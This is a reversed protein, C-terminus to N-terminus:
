YSCSGLPTYNIFSASRTSLDQAGIATVTNGVTAIITYAGLIVAIGIVAHWLSKKASTFKVDSGQAAMMQLGYWIIMIVMIVLVFRTLWCALGTLAGFLSQVTIDVGPAKSLGRDDAANVSSALFTLVLGITYHILKKM